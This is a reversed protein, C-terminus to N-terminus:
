SAYTVLNLRLRESGIFQMVQIVWTANKIVTLLHTLYLIVKLKRTDLILAELTGFLSLSLTKLKQNRMTSAVMLRAKLYLHKTLAVKKSCTERILMKTLLMSKSKSWIHQIMMPSLKRKKWWWLAKNLLRILTKDKKQLMKQADLVKTLWRNLSRCLSWPWSCRGIAKVLYPTTLEWKVLSCLNVKQLPCSRQKIKQM